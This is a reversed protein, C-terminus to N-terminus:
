RWKPDNIHNIDHDDATWERIHVSGDRAVEILKNVLDANRVSYLDLAKQFLSMQEDRTGKPILIVLGAHVDLKAYEKLFDRRNDTVIIYDNASAFRVLNWDQWGSKGLHTVYDAQYGRAKAVGVLAGSLCEDILFRESM